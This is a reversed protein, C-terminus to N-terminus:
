VGAVEKEPLVKSNFNGSFVNFTYITNGVNIIFFIVDQKVFIGCDTEGTSVAQPVAREQGLGARSRQGDM